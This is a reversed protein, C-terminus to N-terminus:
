QVQHSVLLLLAPASTRKREGERRTSTWSYGPVLRTILLKENPSQKISRAVGPPMVGDVWAALRPLNQIRSSPMKVPLRAPKRIPNQANATLPPDVCSKLPQNHRHSPPSLNQLVALLDLSIIHSRDSSQPAASRMM